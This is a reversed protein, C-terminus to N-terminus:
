TFFLCGAEPTWVHGGCGFDMVEPRPGHSCQYQYEHYPIEQDCGKQKEPNPCNDQKGGKVGVEM